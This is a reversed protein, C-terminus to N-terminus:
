RHSRWRQWECQIVRGLGKSAMSHRAWSFRRSRLGPPGVSAPPCLLDWNGSWTHRLFNDFRLISHYPNRSVYIRLIWSPIKPAMNKCFIYEVTLRTPGTTKTWARHAAQVNEEGHRVQSKYDYRNDIRILDHIKAASPSPYEQLYLSPLVVKSPVGSM